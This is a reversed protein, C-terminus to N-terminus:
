KNLLQTMYWLFLTISAIIATHEMIQIFKNKKKLFLSYDDAVIGSIGIIGIWLWFLWSVKYEIVKILGYTM